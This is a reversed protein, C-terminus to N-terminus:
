EDPRILLLSRHIRGALYPSLLQVLIRTGPDFHLPLGPCHLDQLDLDQLDRRRMHTKAHGTRLASVDPRQATVDSFHESAACTHFAQCACPDSIKKGSVCQLDGIHLAQFLFACNVSCETDDRRRRDRDPLEVPGM